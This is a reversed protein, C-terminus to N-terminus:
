TVLTDQCSEKGGIPEVVVRWHVKGGKHPVIRLQYGIQNLRQNIRRDTSRVMNRTNGKLAHLRWGFYKEAFKEPTLKGAGLQSVMLKLHRNKKKRKGRAMRMIVKGTETMIYEFGLYEFRAYTIATKPNLELGKEALYPELWEMYRELPEVTPSLVLFDDMHRQYYRFHWKEKTIHDLESLYLNALAQSQRLGLTLGVPQLGLFLHMVWKAKRDTAYREILAAAGEVPISAFFGHIDAKLAFPRVHYKAWFSQLQRKLLQRAYDTGRGRTNATAEPTLSYTLDHYTEGNFIMNQVTKDRVNPVQAIRPKPFMIKKLRMNGPVFTENVLSDQLDFCWWELEYKIRQHNPQNRKGKAADNYNLCINRYSLDM